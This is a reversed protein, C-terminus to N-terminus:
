NGARSHDSDEQSDFGPDESEDSQYGSIFRHTLNERMLSGFGQQEGPLAYFMMKLQDIIRQPPELYWGLMELYMLRILGTNFITYVLLEQQARNSTMSYDRHTHQTGLHCHEDQCLRNTWYYTSTIIGHGVTEGLVRFRERGFPATTSFTRRHSRSVRPVMRTTSCLTRVPVVPGGSTANLSQGKARCERARHGPKGCYLCLDNKIREDRQAKSLPNRNTSNKGTRPKGRTASFEWDMEDASRRSPNHQRKRALNSGQHPTRGGKELRREQVRGDLKTCLSIMDPLNDPRETHVLLDKVDTKLGNYFQAILAEENWGLRPIYQQFTAAYAAVSTVQRLAEMRREATRREDVDGYMRELAEKYGNWTLVRLTEPRCNGPTTLNSMRDTMFPQFWEGASGRLFSAAFLVRQEANRFDNPRTLFAFQVQTLYAQFKRRDGYFLDPASAKYDTRHATDGANSGTTSMTATDDLSLRALRETIGSPSTVRQIPIPHASPIANGASGSTADPPPDPRNGKM